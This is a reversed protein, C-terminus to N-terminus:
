SHSACSNMRRPRQSPCRNPSAAICRALSAETQVRGSRLFSSTVSHPELLGQLGKPSAGEAMGPAAHAASLAVVGMLLMLAQTTRKPHKM